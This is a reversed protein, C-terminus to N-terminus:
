LGSYFIFSLVVHSNIKVEEAERRRRKIEELEEEDLEKYGGGRGGRNLLYTLQIIPNCGRNLLNILQAVSNCKSHKLRVCQRLISFDYLYLGFFLVNINMQDRPKANKSFIKNKLMKNQTLVIKQEDANTVKISHQALVSPITGRPMHM